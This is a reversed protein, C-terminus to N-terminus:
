SRLVPTTVNRSRKRGVARRGVAWAWLGLVVLWGADARGGLNCGTQPGARDAATTAPLDAVNPDGGWSLEDLDTAGDRDSDAHATKMAALAPTLTTDDDDHFGHGLLTRAFPTDAAGAGADAAVHCVACAPPSALSLATALAAGDTDKAAAVRAASVVAFLAAGSVVRARRSTM